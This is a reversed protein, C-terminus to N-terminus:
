SFDFSLYKGEAHDLGEWKFYCWVVQDISEATLNQDTRAMWEDVTELYEKSPEQGLRYANERQNNAVLDDKIVEVGEPEDDSSIVKRGAQKKKGSKGNRKTAAPKRKETTWLRVDLVRDVRIWAEPICDEANPLAMPPKPDGDDEVYVRHRVGEEGEKSRIIRTHELQMKPGKGDLFNRLKGQARALLWLHPVWSTRRYSRGVWKVLYERPLDHRYSPENPNAEEASPPYPRWAIIKDVTSVFSSCDNCLWSKDEQYARAIEVLTSEEIFPNELHGYHAARKCTRCRFVLQREDKSARDKPEGDITPVEPEQTNQNNQIAPASTSQHCVM